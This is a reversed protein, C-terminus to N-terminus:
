ALEYDFEFVEVKAVDGHMLSAAYDRASVETKYPHYVVSLSTRLERESRATDVVGGNSKTKRVGWRRETKPLMKEAADLVRTLAGYSGMSLVGIVNRETIADRLMKIDERLNSM